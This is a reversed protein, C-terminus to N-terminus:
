KPEFGLGDENSTGNGVHATICTLLDLMSGRAAKRKPHQDQLLM